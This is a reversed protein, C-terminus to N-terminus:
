EVGVLYYEKCDFWVEYKNRYAIEIGKNTTFFTPFEKRDIHDSMEYEHEDDFFYDVNSQIWETSFDDINIDKSKIWSYKFNGIPFFYSPEGFEQADDYNSIVCVSKDRRIHGNDSLWKNLKKFLTKNMGMPSRDKRVQRVIIQGPKLKRYMGRYFPGMSNMLKLYKKCNRRILNQTDIPMEDIFHNINENVYQELRM